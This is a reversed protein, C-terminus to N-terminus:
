SEHLRLDKLDPLGALLRPFDDAPLDIDHLELLKLPPSSQEIFYVLSTGTAAHAYGLPEGSSRLHLRRLTPAHIYSLLGNVNPSLILSLSELFPVSTIRSEQHPPVFSRDHFM